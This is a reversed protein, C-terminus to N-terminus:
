GTGLRTAKSPHIKMKAVVGGVTTANPSPASSSPTTHKPAHDHFPRVHGNSTRRRAAQSAISTRRGCSVGGHFGVDDGGANQEGHDGDSVDPLDDVPSLQEGAIRENQGRADAEADPGPAQHPSRGSELVRMFSVTRGRVGSRQGASSSRNPFSPAQLPQQHM